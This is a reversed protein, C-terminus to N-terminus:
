GFAIVKRLSLIKTYLRNRAKRNRFTTSPPHTLIFSKRAWVRTQGFSLVFSQQTVKFRGVSSVQESISVTCSWFYTDCNNSLSYVNSNYLRCKAFWRSISLCKSYFTQWRPTM